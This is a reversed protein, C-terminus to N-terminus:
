EWKSLLSSISMRSAQLNVTKIAYVKAILFLAVIFVHTCTDKNGKSIYESILHNSWMYPLEKKLEKFFKWMIYKVHHSHENVNEGVTSSNGKIQM